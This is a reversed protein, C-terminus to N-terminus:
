DSMATYLARHLANWHLKFDFWINDFLTILSTLHSYFIFYKYTYYNISTCCTILSLSPFTCTLSARTNLTNLSLSFHVAPPFNTFWLTCLLLVHFCRYLDHITSLCYTWIVYRSLYPSTHKKILNNLGIRTLPLIESVHLLTYQYRNELAVTSYLAICVM